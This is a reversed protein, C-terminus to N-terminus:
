RAADKELLAKVTRRVLAPLVERRYWGDAEIGDRGDFDNCDRAISAAIDASAPRGGTERSFAEELRTWRRPVTEVSGVAINIRGEASLAGSVIAVPYDGARRLPLRVHASAVADRPVIVRTLIADALLLPRNALFTATPLRVPAHDARLEVIADVALLAPLLDAAAFDISCLNGGVTAARRIAPNASGSAAAAVAELGPVGALARDLADHTVAAGITVQHAEIDITKLGPLAHLSILAQPLAIGRRPNRMLWTGGALVVAGWRQAALAEEFTGAVTLVRGLIDSM